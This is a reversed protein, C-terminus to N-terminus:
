CKIRPLHQWNTTYQPSLFERRMAFKNVTGTAAMRSTSKGFRQNIADMCNMLAVNDKSPTFLDGQFHTAPQLDIVGLGCKYYRVGTKYLASLASETAGTIIRTDSTPVAFPIYVSKRFYPENDHPSSSAFITVGNALSAQKRLKASVTEAHAALAFKLQDKETIRQGFSRSSFIEKKPSRVEDWTLRIDGNLERVTNEVLISFYKRMKHPDQKSLELATKIGMVNLKASLKSGIGWVDNVAMNSLVHQRTPEDDIVAIGRYGEIRKAAHSAAKALTATKGMGVGVPLRVEKWITQRIVRAM